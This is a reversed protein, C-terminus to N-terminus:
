DFEDIKDNVLFFLIGGGVIAGVVSTMAGSLLGLVFSIAYGILLGYYGWSKWNWVAVACAIVVAEVAFLLMFLPMVSSSAGSFRSLQSYENCIVAMYFLNAGIIFVLFVSLCGGREREAPYGSYSDFKPKEFDNKLKEEEYRM